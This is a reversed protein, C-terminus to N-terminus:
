KFRRGTAYVMKGMDKSVSELQTALRDKLSENERLRDVNVGAMIHKLKDVHLQYAADDTINRFKFTDMYEQLQILHSDYLKKRTGDLNPTLVDLLKAVMDAGAQRLTARWEEAALEMTKLSRQEQEAAIMPDILALTSQPKVELYDYEMWFGKEVVEWKPYDREDFHKGLRARTEAVRQNYVAKLRAILEPRRIEAYAKIVRNVKVLMGMPLFRQGERFECTHKDLWSRLKADQSRIESLEPCDLLKKQRRFQTPDVVNAVADSTEAADVTQINMGNDIQKLNGMGNHFSVTFICVGEIMRAINITSAPQAQTAM